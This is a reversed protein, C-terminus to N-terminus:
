TQCLTKRSTECEYISIQPSTAAHYSLCTQYRLAGVGFPLSSLSTVAVGINDWTYQREEFSDRADIWHTYIFTTSNYASKLFAVQASSMITALEMGLSQCYTKAATWNRSISSDVFYNKGDVNGLNILRPAREKLSAEDLPQAAASNVATVILQLIGITIAVVIRFEM